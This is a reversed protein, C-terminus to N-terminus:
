SQVMWKQRFTGDGTTGKSFYLSDSHNRTWRYLVAPSYWSWINMWCSGDRESLGACLLSNPTVSWSCRHERGMADFRFVPMLMNRTIETKLRGQGAPHANENEESSDRPAMKWFTLGLYNFLNFYFFRVRLPRRWLLSSFSLFPWMSSIEAKRFDLAHAAVIPLIFINLMQVCMERLM